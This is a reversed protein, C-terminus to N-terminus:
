SDESKQEEEESSSGEQSKIEKDTFKVAQNNLYIWEKWSASWRVKKDQYLGTLNYFNIDKIYKFYPYIDTYDEESIDENSSEYSWPFNANPSKLKQGQWRAHFLQDKYSFYAQHFYTPILECEQTTVERTKPEEQSM